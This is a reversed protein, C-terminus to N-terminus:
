FNSPLAGQEMFEGSLSPIEITEKAIGYREDYQMQGTDFLVRWKNPGQNYQTPQIDKNFIATRTGIDTTLSSYMPSLYSLKGAENNGSVEKKLDIPNVPLIPQCGQCDIDSTCQERTIACQSQPGCMNQCTTTTTLPLSVTHSTEPTGKDEYGEKFDPFFFLFCILIFFSITFLLLLSTGIRKEKM